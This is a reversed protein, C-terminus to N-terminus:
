EKRNVQINWGSVSNEKIRQRTVEFYRAAQSINNFFLLEGSNLNTAVASKSNKQTKNINSEKLKNKTKDSVIRGELGLSIKLKHSESLKKNSHAESLKKKTVESLKIGKRKESLKKKHEESFSKGKLRDSLIKKHEETIKFGYRFAKTGIYKGKLAESIKCAIEENMIFSSGGASINYGVSRDRSNLEKIWFIERENLIKPSNCYEIIEKIFNDKGFELIVNKILEGSGYYSPTYKKEQGIYIKGNILNTVKYVNM